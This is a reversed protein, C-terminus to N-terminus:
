CVSPFFSMEKFYNLLRFKLLVNGQSQHQPETSTNAQCGYPGPNSGWCQLFLYIIKYNQLGFLFIL